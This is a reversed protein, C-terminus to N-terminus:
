VEKMATNMREGRHKAVLVRANTLVDALACAAEQDPHHRISFFVVYALAERTKDLADVLEKENQTM